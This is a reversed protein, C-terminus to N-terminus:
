GDDKKGKELLKAGERGAARMASRSKPYPRSGTAVQKQRDDLIFWRWGKEKKSTTVFAIFNGISAYWMTDRKNRQNRLWNIEMDAM